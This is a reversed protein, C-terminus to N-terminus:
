SEFQCVMVFTRAAGEASGSQLMLSGFSAASIQNAKAATVTVNAGGIYLPLCNAAVTELENSAVLVTVTGTLAAPAFIVFDIMAGFGALSNIINSDTGGNAITITFKGLSRAM